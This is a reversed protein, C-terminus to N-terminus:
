VATAALIKTSVTSDGKSASGVTAAIKSNSKRAGKARQDHKIERFQYFTHTVTNQKLRCLGRASRDKRSAMCKSEHGPIFNIGLESVQNLGM